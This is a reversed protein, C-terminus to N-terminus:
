QFITDLRSADRSSSANALGLALAGILQMRRRQLSLAAWDMEQSAYGLDGEDTVQTMRKKYSKQYQDWEHELTHSSTVFLQLVLDRAALSFESSEIALFIM